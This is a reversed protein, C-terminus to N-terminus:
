KDLENRRIAMMTAADGIDAIAMGNIEAAEIIADILYSFAAAKKIENLQSPSLQNYNM